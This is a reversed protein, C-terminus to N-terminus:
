EGDESRRIMNYLEMYDLAPKSRPAYDFLSQQLEQAEKIAIGERIEALVPAGAERAQQRILEALHRNIKPRRDYRTIISGIIALEGNREQIQGAIDAIQYLGKLASTNVTLPVILGTSAFLANYTVEGMSPPTDILIYDYNEKIPLLATRLRSASNPKTRETALDPSAAIVDISQDTQQITQGPDAGRLIQYAGPKEPNAGLFDTLNCQPDLDVCLVRKGDAKAAQALAAATTSKATGGKIIAVTIIQM